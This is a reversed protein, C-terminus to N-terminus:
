PATYPSAANSFLLLETSKEDGGIKRNRRQESWLTFHSRAIPVTHMQQTPVNLILTSSDIGLKECQMNFAKYFAGRAEILEKFTGHELFIGGELYYIVDANMVSTLNHTVLLVTSEVTLYDLTKQLKNGSEPDLASTPEDLLYASGGQLLTRAITVRQKEGGSLHQGKAGTKATLITRDDDRILEAFKAANVIDEDSANLDAYRINDSVTADFLAMDQSVTVLRSRLSAASIDNIDCGDILINGDSVKYFRLLLKILTSKGEGSPGVIAVKKGPAISFSLNKIIEKPLSTQNYASPPYKFSVNRFEIALPARSVLEVVHSHDGVSSAQNLFNVIDKADVIAKHVYNIAVSCNKLNINLRTMLYAYLAFNIQNLTTRESCVFSVTLLSGIFAAMNIASLVIANKDDTKLIQNHLIESQHLAADVCTLEHAVQGYQHAIQYNSISQLLTTYSLYDTMVSHSRNGVAAHERWFSVPIYFGAVGLPILGIGGVSYTLVASTAVVEFVVPLVGGFFSPIGQEISTYNKNIMQAFVGTTNTRQEDLELAFAKEVMDFTIKKQVHTRVSNLLFNRVNPLVQAVALGSTAIAAAVLYESDNTAIYNIIFIPAVANIGASVVDMAFGVSIKVRNSNEKSLIYYSIKKLVIAFMIIGKKIAM